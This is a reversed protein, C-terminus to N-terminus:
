AHWKPSPRLALSPIRPTSKTLLAVAMFLMKRAEKSVSRPRKLTPTQPDTIPPGATKVHSASIHTQKCNLRPAISHSLGPTNVSGCATQNQPPTHVTQGAKLCEPFVCTHSYQQTMHVPRQACSDSTPTATCRSPSQGSPQQVPVWIPFTTPPAPAPRTKPTM